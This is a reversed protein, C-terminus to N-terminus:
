LVTYAHIYVYKYIDTNTHINIYIDTDLVIQM